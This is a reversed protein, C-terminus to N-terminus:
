QFDLYPRLRHLDKPGFEDMFSLSELSEVRGCERRRNVLACVQEYSLYPHRLLEKFSAKNVPIKHLDTSDLKLYALSKLEQLNEARLGEIEELQELSVFGGLCRRYDLIRSVTYSGIGKVALLHLSDVRNLDISDRCSSPSDSNKESSFVKQQDAALQQYVERYAERRAAEYVRERRLSDRQRNTEYRARKEAQMRQKELVQLSDQRIQEEQFQRMGSLLEDDLKWCHDCLMKILFVLLLFLAFAYKEAKPYLM